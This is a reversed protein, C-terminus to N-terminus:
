AGVESLAVSALAERSSLCSLTCDRTRSSWAACACAEWIV